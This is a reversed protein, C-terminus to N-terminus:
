PLQKSRQQKMAGVSQTRRRKSEVRGDLKIWRPRTITKLFPKLASNWGSHQDCPRSTGYTSLSSEHKDSLCYRQFNNHGGSCQKKPSRKQLSSNRRRNTEPSYRVPFCLRPLLWFHECRSFRVACQLGFIVKCHPPADRLHKSPPASSSSGSPPAAMTAVIPLGGAMPHFERSKSSCVPRPFSRLKNARVATPQCAIFISTTPSFIFGVDM